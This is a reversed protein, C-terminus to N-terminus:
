IQRAWKLFHVHIATDYNDHIVSNSSIEMQWLGIMPLDGRRRNGSWAKMGWQVNEGWRRAQLPDTACRFPLPRESAANSTNKSINTRSIGNLKWNSICHVPFALVLTLKWTLAAKSCIKNGHCVQALDFPKSFLLTQTAWNAHYSRAQRTALPPPHPPPPPPPPPPTPTPTPPPTPTPTPTHPPPTTPTPPPPIPIKERPEGGWSLLTPEPSTLTVPSNERHFFENVNPNMNVFNQM